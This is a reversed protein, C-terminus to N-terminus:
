VPPLRYVARFENVHKKFSDAWTLGGVYYDWAARSSHVSVMGPDIPIGADNYIQNCAMGFQISKQEDYPIVSPQPPKPTPSPLSSGDLHNFPRVAVFIQDSIDAGEPSKVLTPSGTGAGSLMDFGWLKEGPMWPLIGPVWAIADKSLPRGPDARKTGYSPGHEYCIQEALAYTWARAKVEAETGEPVRWLPFALAFRDRTELVRDPLNM